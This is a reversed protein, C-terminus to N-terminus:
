KVAMETKIKQVKWYRVGEQLGGGEWSAGSGRKQCLLIHIPQWPGSEWMFRGFLLGLFVRSSVRSWPLGNEVVGGQKRKGKNLREEGCVAKWFVEAWDPPLLLPFFLSASSILTHCHTLIDGLSGLISNFLPYFQWFTRTHPILMDLHTLDSASKCSETSTLSWSETIKLADTLCPSVWLILM